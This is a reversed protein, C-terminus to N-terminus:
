ADMAAVIAEHTIPLDRVRVGVADRVANGLAAATPGTAAEGSGLWPQDPRDLLTVHVPPVDEFGLIPYQGWTDSVVRGDAFRVREMLTWSLSQLIGGEIQNAVGDPSVIRGVDVAAWAGSVRVSTVAEVEVVVACWAGTSKYRAYGIGRGHGEPLPSGWDAQQAVTELVDRGRPDTLHRLRYELPDADHQRALDDLHSEIAFVNLHSGLSRMASTRIPMEIVRHSVARVSGVDYGPLANRAMGFGRVAPPDVAPPIPIGDEQDEFALLAPSQLLGPRSLHGNGYGDWSWATIRGGVDTAAALDVVMAPGFPSWGLEDERSWTVQIPAEPRRTALLAADYAVDDAPNHGYCGAGEVHHVTISELARGLARALDRRLPHVGQTHSWVTLRGDIEQAIACAPGISGHALFPRTYRATLTPETLQPGDAVTTDDTPATTLLETVDADTLDSQPLDWDAADKLAKAAAIASIEDDAIVALVNGDHIVDAVGPIALANTADVHELIAGRAPRRIMRAFRMGPLRMDQLFRPHGLVKDALDVRPFDAGIAGTSPPLTDRMRVPVDLDVDEALDAYTVPATVGAHFAGDTLTADAGLRRTAAETFLERAHSAAAHLAGGSHQVSLSSNTFREDPGDTSPPALRVRAPEVSLADAVIQVLATAIGQGLEAKGTRALVVDPQSLDLWDSILPAAELSPNGPAM